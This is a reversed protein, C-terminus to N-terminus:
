PSLPDGQSVGTGLSFQPGTTFCNNIVCSSVNNYLVRIWASLLHHVSIFGIYHRILFNFNITDFNKKFDITVLIGSVENLKTYEHIDDSPELLM